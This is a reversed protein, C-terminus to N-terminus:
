HLSIQPFIFSKNNNNNNNNFILLYFLSVRGLLLKSFYLLVISYSRYGVSYFFTLSKGTGMRSTVLWVKESRSNNFLEGGPLTQCTVDRSPVPFQIVKKLLRYVLAIYHFVVRYMSYVKYFYSTM